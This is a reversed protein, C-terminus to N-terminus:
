IMCRTQVGDSAGTFGRALLDGPQYVNLLDIM